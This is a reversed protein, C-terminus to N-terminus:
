QEGKYEFSNRATERVVVSALRVPGSVPLRRALKEWIVVTLMESTPNIQAFEPTDLNLHKHDFATLVEEGVIRDLNELDVLMGSRPDPQGSVTVEVGYNHGHGNPNDCKGFLARNEEDSLHASHLRHSASFDYSRTVSVNMSDDSRHGDSRTRTAWLVPSEWVRIADLTAQGPMHPEIREWCFRSINELTPANERFFDVDVNLFRGDLLGTVQAKLVRDIDVINVVMSTLPEINGSVVMEVEYNHGHGRQDAWKGFLSRNQEESLSALWYNHAACFQARRKLQVVMAKNAVGYM